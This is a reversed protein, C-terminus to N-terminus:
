RRVLIKYGKKEMCSTVPNGAAIFPISNYCDALDRNYQVHDVGTM